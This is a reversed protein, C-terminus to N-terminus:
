GNQEEELRERERQAAHAARANDERHMAGELDVVRRDLMWAVDEAMGVNRTPLLDLVQALRDYADARPRLDAIQARLAKIEASARKMMEIAESRTIDDRAM